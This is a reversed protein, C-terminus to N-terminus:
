GSGEAPCTLDPKWVTVRGGNSDTVWITMEDSSIATSHPSGMTAQAGFNDAPTNTWPSSANARKWVTVRHGLYDTLWITLEDSSVAVGRPQGMSAAAGFNDAPTNTWPSSASTRRWVTVRGSTWDTVWLTMEDSSVAIGYPDGMTVWSGFNDAPTNTWPSSANARKWVTVRGGTSDTLWITLEDSSVAISRAFGVTAFSGFNDASTNTWPSSASTRKWVTVRGGILDTVWLTKEDSSLAIGVPGSMSAQSGFNDAPTNTWPSSANSRKWVTVRRGLYDTVWLTMADSSVAIGTAFGMTTSAGFNDAPTNTWVRAPTTCRGECCLQSGSCSDPTCTPCCATGLGCGSDNVRGDPMITQCFIANALNTNNAFIAGTFNAGILCAGSLNAKTFNAGQGNVGRLNARSLNSGTCNLGPFSSTSSLDCRSVNAGKGPICAGARWCGDGQATNRKKDKTRDKATQRQGQELGPAEAEEQRTGREGAAAASRKGSWGAGAAGGPHRAGGATIRCRRAAADACRLSSCGSSWSGEWALGPRPLPRPGVLRSWSNTKRYSGPDNYLVRSFRGCRGDSTSCALSLLCAM